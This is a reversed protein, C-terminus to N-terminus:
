RNIGELYREGWTAAFNREVCHSQEKGPIGHVVEAVNLNALELALAVRRVNRTFPEGMEYIEDHIVFGRGEFLPTLPDCPADVKLDWYGTSVFRPGAFTAGTVGRGSALSQVWRHRCPDGGRRMRGKYLRAANSEEIRGSNFSASHQENYDRRIARPDEPRTGRLRSQFGGPVSLHLPGASRDRASAITRVNLFFAPTRIKRGLLAIGAFSSARAGNKVYSLTVAGKADESEFTNGDAGYALSIVPGGADFAFSPRRLKGKPDTATGALPVTQASRVGLALFLAVHRM